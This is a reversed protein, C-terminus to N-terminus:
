EVVITATALENASVRLTAAGSTPGAPDLRASATVEVPVVQAFVVTGQDTTEALSTNPLGSEDIYVRQEYDGDLDVVAGVVPSGAGDEVAILGWGEDLDLDVGLLQAKLIMTQESALWLDLDARNGALPPSLAFWNTSWYEALTARLWGTFGAPGVDLPFSYRGDRGSTMTAVLAGAADYAEVAVDELRERTLVDVAAGGISLVRDGESEAESEAEAESESESEAPGGDTDISASRHAAGCALVAAAAAIQALRALRANGQTLQAIVQVRNPGEPPTRM